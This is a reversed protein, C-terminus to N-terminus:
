LRSMRGYEDAANFVSTVYSEMNNYSLIAARWGEGTGLDRNGACLYRAAALAADDIDFPDATGDGDGDTAWREWTTPIFQMPGVARDYVTDGDLRGNDTDRIEKRQPGGDLPPGIVPPDSRGDERLTAGNFQGHNSEVRGIGALTTWSLRCGPQTQTIYLEAYGYAQLAVRPIGLHSLSEAWQALADQPRQHGDPQATPSTTPAASPQAGGTDPGGAVAELSPSAGPTPRSHAGTPVVYMGIYMAAGVVALLAVGHLGLRTAPRRLVDKVASSVRTVGRATGAAGQRLSGTWRRM